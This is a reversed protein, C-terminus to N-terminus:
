QFTIVIVDQSQVTTYLKTEYKIVKGDELLNKLNNVSEEGENFITNNYVVRVSNNSKYKKAANLLDIGTKYTGNYMDFEGFMSQISTDTEYVQKYIDSMQDIVLFVGSTIMITVFIGVGIMLAKNTIADM